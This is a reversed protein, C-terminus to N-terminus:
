PRVGIGIDINHGAHRLIVPWYARLDPFHLNGTCSRAAALWSNGERFEVSRCPGGVGTPCHGSKWLPAQFSGTRFGGVATTCRRSLLAQLRVPQEQRCQPCECTRYAGAAM